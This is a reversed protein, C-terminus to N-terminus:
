QSAQATAAAAAEAAVAAALERAEDAPLWMYLLTGGGAAPPAPQVHTVPVFPRGFTCVAGVPLQGAFCADAAYDLALQMHM